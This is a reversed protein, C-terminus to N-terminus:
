LPGPGWICPLLFIVSTDTFNNFLNETRLSLYNITYKRLEM